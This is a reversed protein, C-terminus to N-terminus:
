ITKSIDSGPLALLLDHVIQALFRGFNLNLGPDVTKYALKARNTLFKIASKGLKKQRAHDKDQHYGQSKRQREM